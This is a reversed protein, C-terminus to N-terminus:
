EAAVAALHDHNIKAVWNAFKDMYGQLFARTTDDTIEYNDDILGPKSQFYVEPTGMLAVGLVTVISRLHAQAQATGTTGPTTGTITVPKDAWSSQGYPRSAWDIANKLVAPISRNFEPTILIAADAAEIEGKFRTVSAPPNQWLADDYFPLDDIRIYNFVLREAALGELAKAFKLNISNTRVSGVLVAVKYM